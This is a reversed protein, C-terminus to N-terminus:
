GPKSVKTLAGTDSGASFSKKRCARMRMFLERSANEQVVDFIGVM